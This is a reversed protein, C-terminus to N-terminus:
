VRPGRDDTSFLITMKKKKKSTKGGTRVPAQESAVQLRSFAADLGSSFTRAFDPVPHGAEGEGGSNEEQSFNRQRGGTSTSPQGSVATSTSLSPMSRQVKGDRLMQAFSRLSSATDDKSPSSSPPPSPESGVVPFMEQSSLDLDERRVSTDRQRRIIDGQLSFLTQGRIDRRFANEATKRAGEEERTKMARMMERQQVEPEFAHMVEESIYPPKLDLEVLQIVCTLPLHSLYRYRKRVEETVSWTEVELVQSTIEPPSQSLQGYQANLMRVNIPHLYVHQGNASQYFYSTSHPANKGRKGGDNEKKKTVEVSGSSSSASVPSGVVTKHAMPGVDEAEEDSFASSYVKKPAIEMVKSVKEDLKQTQDSTEELSPPPSKALKQVREHLSKLAAELFCAEPTDGETAMAFLLESEEKAVIQQQIQEPKITLIKSFALSAQDEKLNYFVGLRDEYETAPFPWVSGRQCLMLRMTVDMGGKILPRMQSSFSKLDREYVSDYCIPCKRYGLDSLALYHLICPWCFVHGCRTIKAAVPEHLCIPCSLEEHGYSRIQEINNWDVLVDPDVHHVAYDGDERVVFQCNAQMFQEKSYTRIQGGHQGTLNREWRTNQGQSGGRTRGVYEEERRRNYDLNLLHAYNHKRSGQELGNIGLEEFSGLGSPQIGGGRNPGGSFLSVGGGGRNGRAQGGRNNQNSTASSRGSGRVNCQHSSGASPVSLAPQHSAPVFVSAAPNLRGSNSLRSFGGQNGGSANGANRKAVKDMSRDSVLEVQERQM